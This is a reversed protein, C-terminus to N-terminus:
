SHGSVRYRVIQPVDAPDGEVGYLTRGDVELLRFSAPATARAVPFGHSSLMLWDGADAPGDAFRVRLWVIGDRGVKVQDVPPYFAPRFLRSRISDATIPPLPGEFGPPHLMEKILSDVVRDPLPRPQYSIKRVLPARELDHWLYVTFEQSGRAKSAEQRVLVLVRGDSSVAYIPDDSFPQIYHSEGDEYVFAMSSHLMSFRTVTDLVALGRDTRLLRAERLGDVPNDSIALNDQVLLSGDELLAVPTGHLSRARTNGAGPSAQIGFPITTVGRGQRPFLTVRIQAPDVAWMSDRHTGVKLISYFEGPGAGSRGVVRRLAGSPELNLVAPFRYDSLYLSGDPALALAVLGSLQALVSDHIVFTPDRQALLRGPPLERPTGGLTTASLMISALLIPRM